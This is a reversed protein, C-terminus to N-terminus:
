PFSELYRPPIAPDTAMVGVFAAALAIGIAAVCVPVARGRVRWALACAAHVFLAAVGLFYYPVFFAAYGAHMGAAAFHYNTDLGLLLRGAWVAGVHNLVFLALVAGSIAQWRALGRRREGRTRWIMALGSALQFALALMLLTEAVPHRYFPRLATMAAIHAQQGSLMALHNGLHLALFAGILAGSALHLRRTTRNRDDHTEM